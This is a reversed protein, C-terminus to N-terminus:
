ARNSGASIPWMHGYWRWLILLTCLGGITGYTAAVISFGFNGILPGSVLLGIPLGYVAQMRIGIIRGLLEPKVGQLLLVALPLLCLMSAAGILMLVFFGVWVSTTQGLVVILVHWVVSFILMTRAPPILQGLYSLVLSGAMAGIGTAAVLYGLSTQDAGYVERTLYPLLGLTFPYATLNVLFALVVSALHSPTARLARIADIFDRVPTFAVNLVSTVAAAVKVDRMLIASTGYFIVIFLYGWQLGLLGVVTAGTLAGAIRALDTTTRSLSIATMLSERPVIQSTLVNRIGLDSPRILGGLGAILLASIPDLLGAFALALLAAALVSYIVRMYLLINSHGVRDGALGFGPAILTGAYQLSAYLTLLAVSNTETLIFWGLIIIEMETACSTLLDSSWQLRYNRNTFPAFMKSTMAWSHGSILFGFLWPM